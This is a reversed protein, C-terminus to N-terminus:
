KTYLVYTYYVFIRIIRIIRKDNWFYRIKSFKLESYYDRVFGGPVTINNAYQLTWLPFLQNSEYGGISTPGHFVLLPTLMFFLLDLPFFFPRGVVMATMVCALCSTRRRKPSSFLLPYDTLRWYYYIRSRFARWWTNWYSFLRCVRFVLFSSLRSGWGPFQFLPFFPSFSYCRDISTFSSSSSVLLLIRKKQTVRCCIYSWM